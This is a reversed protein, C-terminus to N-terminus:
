KWNQLLRSIGQSQLQSQEQLRMTAIQQELSQTGFPQYGGPVNMSAMGQSLSGLGRVAAIEPPLYQPIESTHGGVWLGPSGVLRGVNDALMGHGGNPIMGPPPPATPYPPFGNQLPDQQGPINSMVRKQLIHDSAMSMFANARQHQYGEGLIDADAPNHQPILPSGHHGLIMDSQQEPMQYSRQEIHLASSTMHQAAGMRPHVNLNRRALFEIGPLGKDTWVSQQQPVSTQYDGHPNLTGNRIHPRLHSSLSPPVYNFPSPGTMNSLSEQHLPPSIPSPNPSPGDVIVSPTDDLRESPNTWSQSSKVTYEGQTFLPESAASSQAQEKQQYSVLLDNVKVREGAQKEIKHLVSILRVAGEASTIKGEQVAKRTRGLSTVGDPHKPPDTLSSMDIPVCVMKRLGGATSLVEATITGTGQKVDQNNQNSESASGSSEPASTQGSGGPATGRGSPRAPPRNGAGPNLAPWDKSEPGGTSKSIKLTDASDRHAGESFSSPLDVQKQNGQHNGGGVHKMRPQMSSSSSPPTSESLSPWTTSSNRVQQQNRQQLYPHTRSQSQISSGSANASQETPRQQM